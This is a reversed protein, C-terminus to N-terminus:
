RGVAIQWGGNRNANIYTALEDGTLAIPAGGNDWFPDHVLFRGADDRGVVAVYHGGRVQATAWDVHPPMAYYNGNAAVLKGADLQAAIWAVDARPGRVEGALGMARAMRVIGDVGTGDATTGGAEGLRTILRADSLEGGWGFARAIMAM